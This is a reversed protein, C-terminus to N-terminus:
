CSAPVFCVFPYLFTMNIKFPINIKESCTCLQLGRIQKSWGLSQFTSDKHQALQARDQFLSLMNTPHSVFLLKHTRVKHTTADSEQPSAERLKQEEVLIDRLHENVQLSLCLDFNLLSFATRSPFLVLM